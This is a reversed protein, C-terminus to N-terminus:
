ISHKVKRLKSAAWPTWFKKKPQFFCVNFLEFIKFALLKRKGPRRVLSRLVQQLKEFTELSLPPVETDTFKLSETPSAGNETESPLVDLDSFNRKLNTM